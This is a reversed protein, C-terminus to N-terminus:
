TKMENAVQQILALSQDPGPADALLLNMTRQCRRLDDGKEMYLNGAQAEVYVVPRTSTEFQVISLPGNLGAHAGLDDPM